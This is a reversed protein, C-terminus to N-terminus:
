RIVCKLRQITSTFEIGMILKKKRIKIRFFVNYVHIYCIKYQIIICLRLISTYSSILSYNNNNTWTFYTILGFIPNIFFPLVIIIKLEVVCIICM